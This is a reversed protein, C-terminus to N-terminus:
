DDNKRHWKTCCALVLESAGKIYLRKIPNGKKLVKVIVSM